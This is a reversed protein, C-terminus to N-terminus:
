DASCEETEKPLSLFIDEGEAYKQSLDEYFKASEDELKKASSIAAATQLKM